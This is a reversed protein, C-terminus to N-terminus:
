SFCRKRGSWSSTNACDHVRCPQCRLEGLAARDLGDGALGAVGGRGDAVLDLLVAERGGVCRLVRGSSPDVAGRELGQDRGAEGDAGDGLLEAHAVRSDPVPQLAVLERGRAGAPERRSTICPCGTERVAKDVARHVSRSAVDAALVAPKPAERTAAGGHGFPPTAELRKEDRFSAATTDDAAVRVVDARQLEMVDIRRGLREREALGADGSRKVGRAGLRSLAHEKTCATM